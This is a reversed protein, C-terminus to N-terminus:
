SKQRDLWKHYILALGLGEEIDVPETVLGASNDLGPVKQETFWYSFIYVSKNNLDRNM